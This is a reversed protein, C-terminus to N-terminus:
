RESTALGWGGQQGIAWLQRLIPLMSVFWLAYAAGHLVAQLPLIFISAWLFVGGLHVTVLSFWSGGLSAHEEGLWTQAFLYPLLAYGFQLVWGYILAQPANQEVGAAAFGEVELLVLPAVTIPALIWFYSTVLHWM